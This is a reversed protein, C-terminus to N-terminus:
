AWQILGAEYGHIFREHVPRVRMGITYQGSDAPKLTGHYLLAGEDVDLFNMQEILPLSNQEVSDLPLAALEVVVDNKALGNLWVKANLEIPTGVTIQKHAFEIAEIHVGQWKEITNRQWSHIKRTIMYENKRYDVGNQMCLLYYRNTYDLLMRRMSYQPACTQIANKMIRIWSSPLGDNQRDERNYYLPLIENELTRYLNLVDAEDQTDEDKYEREEGISWGNIDSTEGSYGEAWWGDLISFNPIGSLAAKQGSM